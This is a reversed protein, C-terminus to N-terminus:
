ITSIFLFTCLGAKKAYPGLTTLLGDTLRRFVLRVGVTLGDLFKQSTTRRSFIFGDKYWSSKLISGASVYGKYPQNKTNEPMKAPALMTVKINNGLKQQSKGKENNIEWPCKQLCMHREENIQFLCIHTVASYLILLTKRHSHYFILPKNSRSFIKAWNWRKIVNGFRSTTRSTTIDHRGTRGELIDYKSLWDTLLAVLRVISFVAYPRLVRDLLRGMVSILLASAVEVGKITDAIRRDLLVLNTIM